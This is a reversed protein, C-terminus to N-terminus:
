DQTSHFSSLRFVFSPHGKAQSEEFLVVSGVARAITANVARQQRRGDFWLDTLAPDTKYM